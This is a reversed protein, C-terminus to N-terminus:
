RHLGITNLMFMFHGFIELTNAEFFSLMQFVVAGMANFYIALKWNNQRQLNHWSKQSKGFCYNESLNVTLLTIPLLFSSCNCM